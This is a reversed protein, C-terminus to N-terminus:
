EKTAQEMAKSATFAVGHQIHMHHQVFEVTSWRWCHIYVDYWVSCHKNGNKQYIYMESIYDWM